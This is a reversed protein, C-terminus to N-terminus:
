LEKLLKKLIIKAKNIENLPQKLRMVSYLRESKEIINDIVQNPFENRLQEAIINIIEKDRL